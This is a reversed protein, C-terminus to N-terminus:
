AFGKGIGGLDVSMGARAFRASRAERDVDLAPWGVRGLATAIEVEDPTRGAGRLDWTEMLPGVTPDFAGGTLRALVLASDLVAALDASCAVPGGEASRNLRALEGDARWASMVDELRDIEDLAATLAGLAAAGNAHEVVATCLTGMLYRAREVSAMTVPPAPTFGGATAGVLGALALLPLPGRM